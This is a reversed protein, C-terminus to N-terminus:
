QHAVGARYFAALHTQLRQINSGNGLTGDEANALAVVGTKTYPNYSMITHTGPDGGGHGVFPGQWFWFLGQTDMWYTPVDTQVSLMTAVSHESLVSVNDLTGGQSIAILLRALDHATSNLDGDFFTPYSFEPVYHVTGEDDVTYQPTKPNDEPLQTYDWHTNNMGLPAFLNQQLHEVLSIGLVHEVAYGALGAGVNSYNHVSGPPLSGAGIYVDESYYQGDQLLYARYFETPDTLTTDECVEHGGQAYLSLNTGHIYYSCNYQVTDRIGSTHTVLHRLLIDRETNPHAIDFPLKMESLSMDLNLRGQEVLQMMGAGMVAKSTSGVNMPAHVTMPQGTELNAIGYGKEFIIQGNKIVAVAVGPIAMEALSQAFTQDVGPFSFGRSPAAGLAQIAYDLVNDSAWEVEKRAYVPVATDPTVGAAELVQNSLDLYNQHSLSGTWGNPLTFSLADSVAGNTAGGILTVHPLSKLTQALVEGASYALEGTLVYVPKTYAQDPAAKLTIAQKDQQYDNNQIQKYAVTQAQDNFFRAIELSVGDFGGDNVRLDIIIGDSDALDKMVERMLTQTDEIDQKADSIVAFFDDSQSEEPALMASERDIRIYGLNGAVKGWGLANSDQYRTLKEGTLYLNTIQAFEGLQEDYATDIYAEWQEGHRQLMLWVLDEYLATSSEGSVEFRKGDTLSVHTDDFDELMAEFVSALQQPSTGANIQPRYTTYAAQWDIDRLAFFAYYDNFTHWFYEFNAVPDDGNLRNKRQCQERMESQKTFVWDNTAHTTLTLTSKDSKLYQDLEDLEKYPHTEVLVCGHSNYQFRRLHETDFQWLNGTGQQVWVGRHKALSHDDNSTGCGALLLAASVLGLAMGRSKRKGKVDCM